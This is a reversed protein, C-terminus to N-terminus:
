CSCTSKRLISTNLVSRHVCLSLTGMMGKMTGAERNSPCLPLRCDCSIFNLNFKFCNKEKCFAYYLSLFICACFYIYVYLKKSSNFHIQSEKLCFYPHYLINQQISANTQISKFSIITLIFYKHYKPELPNM